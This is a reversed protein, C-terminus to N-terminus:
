LATGKNGCRLNLDPVPLIHREHSGVYRVAPAASDYRSCAHSRFDAPNGRQNM